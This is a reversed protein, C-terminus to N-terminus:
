YRNLKNAWNETYFSYYDKKLPIVKYISSWILAPIGIVLLYLPGLIQSQKVHGLEHQFTERYTRSSLFMNRGLSISGPTDKIFVTYNEDSYLTYVKEQYALIDRYLEGLLNQPLQWIYMLIQWM